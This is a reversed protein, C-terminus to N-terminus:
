KKKKKKAQVKAVAKDLKKALKNGAKAAKKIRAPTLRKNLENEENPTIM